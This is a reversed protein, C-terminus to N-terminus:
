KANHFIVNSTEYSRFGPNKKMFKIFSEADPLFTDTGEAKPDKFLKGFTKYGDKGSAIYANTGVVYEKSTDVEEWKNTKKNFIEAKIIRKGNENPVENAEYRIGAGYPFAGTSGDVLAFQLADEIVQLTDAGSIKYTFLTNGFPLYTYADNFTIDGTKIDARVGGSNQIVYDVYNLENLMTEAVFRTAISGEPNSGNRGPIRNASGGPMTIGSISGIVQKALIDKEAKYKSIIKSTNPDDKAISLSPISELYKITEQRETGELEAWKGEKNKAMLKDTHLLVYPNKRTISAIGDDTFHVGLDGVVGSYAWAEVVFVPEGKPSKFETPYEHVVPLKLKRLEDNGYLYHSDGTIIIDIDDVKQAIEFNKETGAHSLLIIKNIGKSKLEEVMKRSTTVEDYFKIDKGPSSSNVTKNVTDLGIIGVKEGNITKIAYPVWKGYLISDKDPIVNSSLVPIKLPELLKLLGENGADFEHNGLTFYDFGGENMVAADASGGFLTFYLTGTIADGAHLVLPNKRNQRLEKVKQNVASFGGINVKLQRGNVSIRQETPELYSHHDNIHIISLDLEKAFSLASLVMLGMFIKKKM